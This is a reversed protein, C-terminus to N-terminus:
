VVCVSSYAKAAKVTTLTV